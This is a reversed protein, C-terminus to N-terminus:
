PIVVWVVRVYGRGPPTEFNTRAGMDPWGDAYTSAFYASPIRYVIWEFVEIIEEVGTGEEVVNLAKEIRACAEDDDLVLQAAHEISTAGRVGIDGEWLWVRTETKTSM